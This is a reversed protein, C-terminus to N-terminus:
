DQIHNRAALLADAAAIHLSNLAITGDDRIPALCKRTYTHGEIDGDESDSERWDDGFNRGTTHDTDDSGWLSLSLRVQDSLGLIGPVLKFSTSVMDFGRGFWGNDWVTNTDFNMGDWEETVAVSWPNIDSDFGCEALSPQWVADWLELLFVAFECRVQHSSLVASHFAPLDKWDIDAPLALTGKKGASSLIHDVATRVANDTCYARYSEPLAFSM